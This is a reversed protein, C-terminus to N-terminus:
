LCIITALLLFDNKKGSSSGLLSNLGLCDACLGEYIAVSVSEATTNIYVYTYAIIILFFLDLIELPSVPTPSHPYFHYVTNMCSM